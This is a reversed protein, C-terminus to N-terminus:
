GGYIVDECYLRPYRLGRDLLNRMRKREYFRREQFKTSNLIKNAYYEDANKIDILSMWYKGINSEQNKHMDLKASEGEIIKVQNALIAETTIGETSLIEINESM